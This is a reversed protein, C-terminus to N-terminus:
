LRRDTKKAARDREIAQLLDPPGPVDRADFARAARPFAAVCLRFTRYALEKSAVPGLSWATDIVQQCAREVVDEREEPAFALAVAMALCSSVLLAERESLALQAMPEPAAPASM